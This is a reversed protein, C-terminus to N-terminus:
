SSRSKSEIRENTFRNLIIIDGISQVWRIPINIAVNEDALAPNADAVYLGDVAMKSIDLVIEDVIGVFIGAPTYIELGKINGITEMM